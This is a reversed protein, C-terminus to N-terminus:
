WYYIMKGDNKDAIDQETLPDPDGENINDWDRVIVDLEVGEPMRDGYVARVCGGDLEVILRTFKM